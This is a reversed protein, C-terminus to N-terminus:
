IQDILIEQIFFMNKLKMGLRQKALIKQQTHQFYAQTKLKLKEIFNVAESIKMVTSLVNKAKEKKNKALQWHLYGSDEM